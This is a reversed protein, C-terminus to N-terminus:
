FLSDAFLFTSNFFNDLIFYLLLFNHSIYSIPIESIHGVTSYFSLSFLMLGFCFKFLGDQFQTCYNEPLVFLDM